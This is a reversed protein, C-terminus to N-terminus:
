RSRDKTIRGTAADPGALAWQEAATGTYTPGDYLPM